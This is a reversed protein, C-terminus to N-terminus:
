PTVTLDLEILTTNGHIDTADIYITHTGVGIKPNKNLSYKVIRSNKAEFVITTNVIIRVSALPSQDNVIFTLPFTDKRSMVINPSSPNQLVINPKKNEKEAIIIPYSQEHYREETDTILILLTAEGRTGPPIHFTGM